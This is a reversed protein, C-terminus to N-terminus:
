KPKSGINTWAVVIFCYLMMFGFFVAKSIDGTETYGILGSLGILACISNLVIVVKDLM